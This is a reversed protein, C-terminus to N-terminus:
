GYVVLYLPRIANATYVILDDVLSTKGNSYQSIIQVSDFGDPKQDRNEQSTLKINIGPTVETLLLMKRSSTETVESYFDSQSSTASTHIGAKSKSIDFSNQITSCLLCTSSSCFEDFDGIDCERTTGHWRSCEEQSPAKTHRYKEFGAVNGYKEVIRYVKLVEPCPSSDCWTKQFKESISQFTVHGQPAELLLVARREAESSCTPGCYDSDSQKPAKWCMLCASYTISPVPEM